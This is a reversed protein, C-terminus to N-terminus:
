STSISTISLPPMWRRACRRLMLSGSIITFTGRANIVPRVGISQYIDQGVRLSETAARFNRRGAPAESRSVRRQRPVAGAADAAGLTSVTRPPQAHRRRTGSPKLSQLM